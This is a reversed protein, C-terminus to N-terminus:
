RKLFQRKWPCVGEIALNRGCGVRLQAKAVELEHSSLAKQKTLSLLPENLLASEEVSKVASIEADIFELFLEFDHPLSAAKKIKENTLFSSQWIKGLMV